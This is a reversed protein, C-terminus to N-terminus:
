DSRPLDAENYLDMANNYSGRQRRAPGSVKGSPSKKTKWPKKYDEFFRQLRKRAINPCTTITSTTAYYEPDDLHVCIIKEDNEGDDVMPMMGIPKSRAPHEVTSGARADLVLMDLPDDDDGLTRPIFAMTQRTSSRPTCSGTSWCYMGTEKDM